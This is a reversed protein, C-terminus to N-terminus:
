LGDLLKAKAQDFEQQTLLGRDLLEALKVLRDVSDPASVVASNTEKVQKIKGFVPMLRIRLSDPTEVDHHFILDGTDTTLRILTTVTTRTTLANLITSLAMGEIAGGVGFGGGFFRGGMTVAGKGGIELATVGKYPITLAVVDSISVFDEDFDIEYVVNPVLPYGYGGLLVCRQIRASRYDELTALTLPRYSRGSREREITEARPELSSFRSWALRWGDADYPFVEVIKSTGKCIVYRREGPRRKSGASWGLSYMGGGYHTIYLGETQGETVRPSDPIRQDAAEGPAVEGTDHQGSDNM